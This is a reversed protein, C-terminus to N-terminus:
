RPCCTQLPFGDTANSTLLEETPARSCNPFTGAWAPTYSPKLAKLPSSSRHRSSKTQPASQQHTITLPCLLPPPSSSLNKDLESSASSHIQIKKKKYKKKGGEPHLCASLFACSDGWHPRGPSCCPLAPSASPLTQGQQSLAVVTPVSLLRM